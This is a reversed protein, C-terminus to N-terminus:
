KKNLKSAISHIDLDFGEETELEDGVAFRKNDLNKSFAPNNKKFIDMQEDLGIKDEKQAESPTATSMDMVEEYSKM